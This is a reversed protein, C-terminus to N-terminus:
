EIQEEIDKTIGMKRCAEVYELQGFLEM